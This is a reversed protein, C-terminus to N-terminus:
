YLDLFRAFRFWALIDFITRPPSGLLFKGNQRDKEPFPQM